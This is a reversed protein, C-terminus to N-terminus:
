YTSFFVSRGARYTYGDWNFLATVVVVVDSAFFDPGPFPSSIDSACKGSGSKAFIENREGLGVRGTPKPTQYNEWPSIAYGM